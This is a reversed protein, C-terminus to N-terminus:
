GDQINILTWLEKLTGRLDFLRGMTSPDGLDRVAQLSWFCRVRHLVELSTPLRRQDRTRPSNKPLFVMDDFWRQMGVAFEDCASKVDVTLM